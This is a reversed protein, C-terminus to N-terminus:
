NTHKTCYTMWKKHLELWTIHSAEPTQDFKFASIVLRNVNVQMNPSNIYSDLKALEPASSHLYNKRLAAVFRTYVKNDKLFRIFKKKM